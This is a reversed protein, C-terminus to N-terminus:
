VDKQQINAELLKTFHSYSRLFEPLARLEADSFKEILGVAENTYEVKTKVVSDCLLEDVSCDLANAIDVIKELSVKTKGNEINSVHQTSIEVVSALCAQTMSRSKRQKRVRAGLNEYDIPM